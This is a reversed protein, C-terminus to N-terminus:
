KRRDIEIRINIEGEVVTAARYPNSEEEKTQNYQGTAAICLNIAVQKSKGV